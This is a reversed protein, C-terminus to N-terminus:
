LILPFMNAPEGMARQNQANVASSAELDRTTPDAPITDLESDFNDNTLKFHDADDRRLGVVSPSYLLADTSLAAPAAPNPNTLSSILSM